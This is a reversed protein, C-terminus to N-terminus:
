AKQRLGCYPVWQYYNLGWRNQNFFITQLFKKGTQKEQHWKYIRCSHITYSLSTLFAALSTTICIIMQSWNSFLHELCKSIRSRRHIHVSSYKYVIWFLSYWYNHWQILISKIGCLYTSIKIVSQSQNSVKSSIGAAIKENEKWLSNRVINM